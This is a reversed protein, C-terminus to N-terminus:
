SSKREAEFQKRLAADTGERCQRFVMFLVQEAPLDLDGRIKAGTILDFASDQGTETNRVRIETEGKHLALM